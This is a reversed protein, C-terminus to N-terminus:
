KVEVLVIANVSMKKIVSGTEKANEVMQRKIDQRIKSRHADTLRDTHPENFPSTVVITSTITMRIVKTM